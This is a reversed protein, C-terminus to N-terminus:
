PLQILTPTCGVLEHEIIDLIKNHDGKALGGGILYPIAVAKGEFIINIKRLCLNLADYDLPIGHKGPKGPAIQTYCNVITVIPEEKRGRTLDSIFLARVGDVYFEAYDICGLKNEPRHFWRGTNLKSEMGFCTISNTNFYAAMQAALGSAQISMCNCGQIAVEYEADLMKQILNGSVIQLSM